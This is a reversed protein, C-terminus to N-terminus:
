VVGEKRGRTKHGQRDFDFSTWPVIEPPNVIFTMKNETTPHTFTLKHAWLALKWGRGLKDGGYKADGFIPHGINSLQVRIQHSRGTKLKVELLSVPPVAVETPIEAGRVKPIVPTKIVRYSLEARKAGTTASPVVEVTNKTENKYLHNVLTSERDKPNGLVVTLYTKEFNGDAIQASLRAAAKSTKAYVMVGGTVRDLRHVLGVFATEKGETRAIYRKIQTLLDDDKSEDPCCPTNQPKIVVVIHNDEFVVAPDNM